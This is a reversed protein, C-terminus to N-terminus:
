KFNTAACKKKCNKNVMFFLVTCGIRCVEPNKTHMILANVVASIGGAAGAKEQNDTALYKKNTQPGRENKKVTM